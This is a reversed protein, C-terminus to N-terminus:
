SLRFRSNTKKKELINLIDNSYRRARNVLFKKQLNFLLPISFYKVIGIDRLFYNKLLYKKKLFFYFNRDSEVSYFKKKYYKAVLTSNGSGFELYLNSKKLQKIFFLNEKKKGFNIKKKVEYDPSYLNYYRLVSILPILFIKKLNIYIFALIKIEHVKMSKLFKIIYAVM